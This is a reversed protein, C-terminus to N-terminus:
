GLIPTWHWFSILRQAARWGVRCVLTLEKGSIGVLLQGEPLIQSTHKTKAALRLLRLYFVPDIARPGLEVAATVLQTTFMM